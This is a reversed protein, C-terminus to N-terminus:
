EMSMDAFEAMLSDESGDAVILTLDEVVGMVLLTRLLERDAESSPVTM